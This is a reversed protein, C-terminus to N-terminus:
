KREREIAVRLEHICPVTSFTKWDKALSLKNQNEPSCDALWTRRRASRQGPSQRRSGTCKGEWAVRWRLFFWRKYWEDAMLWTSKSCIKMPYLPHWQLPNSFNNYNQKCWEGVMLWNGSPVYNNFWCVRMPFHYTLLEITNKWTSKSMQPYPFAFRKLYILM